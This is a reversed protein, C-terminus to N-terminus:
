KLELNADFYESARYKVLNWQNIVRIIDVM